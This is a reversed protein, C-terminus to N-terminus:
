NRRLNYSLLAVMDIIALFVGGILKFPIMILPKTVRLSSFILRKLAGTHSCEALDCRKRSIPIFLIIETGDVTRWTM